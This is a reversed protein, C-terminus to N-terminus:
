RIVSWPRVAKFSTLGLSRSSTSSTSPSRPGAPLDSGDSYCRTFLPMVLNMAAAVSGLRVPRRFLYGAGKSNASLGLGFVVLLISVKVALLLLAAVGM